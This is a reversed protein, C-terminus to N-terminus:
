FNLSLTGSLGSSPPEARLRRGAPDVPLRLQTRPRPGAAGTGEPHHDARGRGQGRGRGRAHPLPRFGDILGMARFQFRARSTGTSPLQATSTTSTPTPSSGLVDTVQTYGRSPRALAPGARADFPVAPGPGSGRLQRARDGTNGRGRAGAPVRKGKWSGVCNAAARGALLEPAPLQRLGQGPRVVHKRRAESLSSVRFRKSLAAWATLVHALREEPARNRLPGPPDDVKGRAPVTYDLGLTCPLSQRSASLSGPPPEREREQNIPSWAIESPPTSSGPGTSQPSSGSRQVATCLGPTGCGSIHSPTAALRGARCPPGSRPTVCALPRSSCPRRASNWRKDYQGAPASTPM